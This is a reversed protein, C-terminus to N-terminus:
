HNNMFNQMLKKLDNLEKRLENLENKENYKQERLSIYNQYDVSSCNIIAGTKEDRYLNKHGEVKIM